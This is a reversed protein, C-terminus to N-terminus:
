LYSVVVGGIGGGHEERGEHEKHSFKQFFIEVKVLAKQM